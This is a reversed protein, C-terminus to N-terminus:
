RSAAGAPAGHRALRRYDPMYVKLGKAATNKSYGAVLQENYREQFFDFPDEQNADILAMDTDSMTLKGFRLTGGRYYMYNRMRRDPLPLPADHGPGFIQVVTGPEIRVAQLRGSIRPPPLLQSPILVFDDGDIRVGRDSKVKILNDLEIGFTSLLGKAPIGLAKVSSPHLRLNGDADVRPAAVITFPVDVGKKLTGTVKLTNGETTVALKKLPSGDYHFVYGNLLQSLSAVSIAIEASDIRVVFSNKDDFVPPEGDKTSVLSGRLSRVNLITQEDVHLNVNRMQTQVPESPKPAAAAVTATLMMMAVVVSRSLRVTQM